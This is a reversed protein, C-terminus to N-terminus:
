VKGSMIKDKYEKPSEEKEKQGEITADARGALMQRAMLEEQRHILERYEAIQSAMTKSIINAEDLISTKKSKDGEQTNSVSKEEGEEEATENTEAQAEESM